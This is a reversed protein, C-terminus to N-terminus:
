YKNRIEMPYLHQMEQTIAIAVRKKVITAVFKLQQWVHKLDLNRGNNIYSGTAVITM